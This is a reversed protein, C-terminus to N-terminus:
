ATMPPAYPENSILSGEGSDALSSQGVLTINATKYPLGIPRIMPRISSMSSMPRILGIDDKPLCNTTFQGTKVGNTNATKNM